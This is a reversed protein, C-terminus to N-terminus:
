LLDFLKLAMAWAQAPEYFFLLWGLSVFLQTIGWSVEPLEELKRGIWRGLPGMMTAYASNIVLGAGHWLGWLVFHWAAGHWLGCLAFALLGSAVQRPLGWRSGGLPIYIYDRIWTSLSIHWRQWFDRLSAAAYPFNFNEALPIALMRSFGIAMDSYGSFDLLIRAALMTLFLWAEGTTLNAFHVGQQNIVLTLNDALVIKKIVGIAVRGAGAAVDDVTVTALGAHLSPVYQQYRKIPGAVLSPFYISFLAFDVPRRIPEGGRYVEILYHVFEFVFFSIALPPAGPLVGQLQHDLRDGWRPDLHAMVDRALFVAYKYYILTLVCFIVGSLCLVRHRTLALLYTSLGIVCIPLVGAPGAFHFHFVVCGTLLWAMRAAPRTLLWYLPFFVAAFCVYWYTNFIM